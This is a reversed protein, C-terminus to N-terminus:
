LEGGSFNWQIEEENKGNETGSKEAKSLPSVVGSNTTWRLAFGSRFKRRSPRSVVGACVGQFKGRFKEWIQKRYQKPLYDVKFIDGVKLGGIGDLTMTISVPILIPHTTILSGSGKIKATNLLYLMTQKFYSSMNGNKDYIGIGKYLSSYENNIKELEQTTDENVEPITNFDFGNINRERIATSKYNDSNVYARSKGNDTPYSLNKILEPQLEKLKKYDELKAKNETAQNLKLSHCITYFVLLVLILSKNVKHDISAIVFNFRKLCKLRLILNM